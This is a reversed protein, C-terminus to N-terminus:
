LEAMQELVDRPFQATQDIEAARPAVYQEAFERVVNIMEQEEENLGYSARMANMEKKKSTCRLITEVFVYSSNCARYPEATNSDVHRLAM